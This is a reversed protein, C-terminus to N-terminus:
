CPASPTWHPGYPLHKRQFIILTILVGALIGFNADLMSPTLSVISLPNEQLITPNTLLFGIRAALIGGLFGYLLGNEIVDGNTGLRAAFKGSLWLGLWVSLIILLGSAQLAVPGLNIVPFM